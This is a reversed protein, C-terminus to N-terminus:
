DRQCAADAIDSSSGAASNTRSVRAAPRDAKMSFGGVSEAAFRLESATLWATEESPM